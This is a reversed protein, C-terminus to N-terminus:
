SAGAAIWTEVAGRKAPHPFRNGYEGGTAPPAPPHARASQGAKEAM